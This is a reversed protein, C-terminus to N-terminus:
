LDISECYQVAREFDARNSERRYAIRTLEQLETWADDQQAATAAYGEADGFGALPDDGRFGAWIDEPNESEAAARQERELARADM